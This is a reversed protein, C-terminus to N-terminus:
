QCPREWRCSIIGFYSHHSPLSGSAIIDEIRTHSHACPPIAKECRVCACKSCQLITSSGKKRASSLSRCLCRFQHLSLVTFAIFVPASRIPLFTTRSHLFVDIPVCRHPLAYTCLDSGTKGVTLMKLMSVTSLSYRLWGTHGSLSSGILALSWSMQM